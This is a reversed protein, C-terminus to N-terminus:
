FVVPPLIGGTQPLPIQDPLNQLLRCGVGGEVPNPNDPRNLAADINTFLAFAVAPILLPIAFAFVGLVLTSYIQSVVSFDTKEELDCVRNPRLHDILTKTFHVDPWPEEDYGTIYTEIINPTKFGISLGTIHFSGFPSPAGNSSLTKPAAQFAESALRRILSSNIFLGFNGGTTLVPVQARQRALDSCSNPQVRTGWIMISINGNQCSVRVEPDPLRFRSIPNGSGLRGPVPITLRYITIPTPGTPVIWIM